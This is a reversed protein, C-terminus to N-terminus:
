PGGKWVAEATNSATSYDGDLTFALVQYRLLINSGVENDVYSFKKARRFRDRDEVMVIAVQEFTNSQATAGATAGKTARLIAFGALDEMQSGDVYKLPRSWNLSIGKEASQASLNSIAQPAVLEPPRVPTKRGCGSIVSLLCLCLLSPLRIRKSDVGLVLSLLHKHKKISGESWGRRSQESCAAGATKRSLPYNIILAVLQRM